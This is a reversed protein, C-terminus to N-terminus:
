VWHGGVWGGDEAFVWRDGRTYEPFDPLQIMNRSINGMCFALAQSVWLHQHIKSQANTESSVVQDSM